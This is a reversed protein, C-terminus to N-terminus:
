DDGQQNSPVCEALVKIVMAEYNMKKQRIGWNPHYSAIYHIGDIERHVVDNKWIHNDDLGNPYLEEYLKPLEMQISLGYWGFLVVHTPKLIEIEQSLLKIDISHLRRREEASLSCKRKAKVHITDQNTWACTGYHQIRRARNWFPSRNDSFVEANPYLDYGVNLHLYSSLSSWCFTQIQDIKDASVGDRKGRGWVGNGEEGVILIRVSSSCWNQPVCTYYPNSYKDGLFEPIKEKVEDLWKEYLEKLQLDIDKELM